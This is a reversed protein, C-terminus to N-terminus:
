EIVVLVKGAEVSTGASVSVHKVRGSKPARLENEMKMAEVVVIGQGSSVEDGASVLVRVVRGPMPAKLSQEGHALTMTDAVPRGRRGNVSAVATRGDFTVLIEGSAGTNALFVQRVASSRWFDNGGHTKDALSANAQQDSDATLVALGESGLRRVSLVLSRGDIVVSYRDQRDAHTVTVTRVRSGLEVDFTM